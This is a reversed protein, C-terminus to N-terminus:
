NEIMKDNLSYKKDCNACIFINDRLKELRCGCQCVYGIVKAPNGVVLEYDSVDKTVVTGAGVMAFRGIENGCVITANAGITAGRKIYTNKYEKKKNIFSRPNIVNTFVCNPGLFVDDECVVGTYISVNNKIKVGKGIRVGNEIFVNLGINCGSGIVVDDQIVCYQWIVTGQGIMAKNSVEASPHKKVELM